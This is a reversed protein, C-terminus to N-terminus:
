PEADLQQTLARTVPPLFAIVMGAGALVVLGIGVRQTGVDPASVLPVGVVLALLQAVTFPARAGYKAGWWGRAVLLLGVGMAAFIVIQLALAPLNSVEEPGTIGVRLGEVIDYVAYGVLGVGQIAAIIAVIALLPHGPAKVRMLRSRPEWSHPREEHDVWPGGRGRRGRGIHDNTRERM